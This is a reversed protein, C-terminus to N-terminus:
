PRSRGAEHQREAEDVGVLAAVHQDLRRPRQQGRMGVHRQHDGALRAHPAADEAGEAADVHAVQRLQALRRRPRAVTHTERAEDGVLVQGVQEGRRRTIARGYRRIVCLPM